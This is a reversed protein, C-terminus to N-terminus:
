KRWGSAEEGYLHGSAWSRVQAAGCTGWMRVQTQRVKTFRIGTVYGSTDARFQVRTGTRTPGPMPLRRAATAALHHMPMIASSLQNYLGSSPSPVKWIAATM